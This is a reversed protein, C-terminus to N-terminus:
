NDAKSDSGGAVVMYNTGEDSRMMWALTKGETDKIIIRAHNDIARVVDCMQNAYTQRLASDWDTWKEASFIIAMGEATKEVGRVGPFRSVLVEFVTDRNSLAELAKIAAADGHRERKLNEYWAQYSYNLLEWKHEAAIEKFQVGAIIPYDKYADLERTWKITGKILVPETLNPVTCQLTLETGAKLNAQYPIGICMGQRSVNTCFLGNWGSPTNLYSAKIKGPIRYFERKEEMAAGM